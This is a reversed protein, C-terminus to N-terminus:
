DSAIYSTNLTHTHDHTHLRSHLNNDTQTHTHGVPTPPSLAWSSLDRAQHSQALSSLSLYFVPLSFTFSPSLDSHLTSCQERSWMWFFFFHLICNQTRCKTPCWPPYLEMYASGTTAWFPSIVEVYVELTGKPLVNIDPLTTTHPHIYLLTNLILM